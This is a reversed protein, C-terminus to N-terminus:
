QLKINGFNPVATHLSSTYLARKNWEVRRLINVCLHAEQLSLLSFVISENVKSFKECHHRFLTPICRSVMSLFSVCLLHKHHPYFCPFHNQWLSPDL